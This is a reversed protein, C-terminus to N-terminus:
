KLWDLKLTSGFDVHFFVIYLAILLIFISIIVLVDKFKSLSSSQTTVNFDIDKPLSINLNSLIKNQSVVTANLREIETKLTEIDKSSASNELRSSIIELEKIGELKNSIVPLEKFHDFNPATNAYTENFRTISEEFALRLKQDYEGLATSFLSFQKEVAEQLSLLSRKLVEDMQALGTSMHASYEKFSGIQTSFFEAAKNSTQIIGKVEQLIETVDNTSTVIKHLNNNLNVTQGLSNNLTEYYKPFAEFKDMVDTLNKLMSRNASSVKRLDMDKITNLMNLEMHIAEKAAKSSNEISVVIEPTKASFRNLQRSLEKVAADEGRELSPLLETQIYTLFNNKEENVRTLVRRFEWVSLYTSAVLGCLSVFMAMQVSTLLSSPDAEEGSFNVGFLGIIIGIMTGALGLYLPGTVKTSIDNEADDVNREIIDKIIHFDIVGGSNKALYGNISKVITRSISNDGSVALQPIKGTIREDSEYDEQYEPIYPAPDFVGKFSKIREWVELILKVQFAVVVGLLLLEIFSIM